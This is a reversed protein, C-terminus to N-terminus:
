GFRSSSFVHILDVEQRCTKPHPLHLCVSYNLSESTSTEENEVNGEEHGRTRTEASTPSSSPSSPCGASRVCSTGRRWSGRACTAPCSTDPADTCSAATRRGPSVSSVRTSARTRCAGSRRCAASWSPPPPPLLLFLLHHIQPPLRSFSRPTSPPPPSPTLLGSTRSRAPPPRSPAQSSTRPTQLPPPPTLLLSPPTRCASLCSLLRRDKGTRFTSATTRRSTPRQLLRFLDVLWCLERDSSTQFWMSCLIYCFKPNM